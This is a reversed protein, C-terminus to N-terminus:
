PRLVSRALRSVLGLLEEGYGGGYQRVSLAADIHLRLRPPVVPLPPPIPGGHAARKQPALCGNLFFAKLVYDDFAADDHDDEATEICEPHLFIGKAPPDLLATSSVVFRFSNGYPVVGRAVWRKKPPWIAAVLIRLM